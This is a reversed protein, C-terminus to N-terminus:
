DAEFAEDDVGCEASELGGRTAGGPGAGAAGGGSAAAAAEGGGGGGGCRELLGVLTLNGSFGVPLRACSKDPMRDVRKNFFTSGFVTFFGSVSPLTESKDFMRLPTERM